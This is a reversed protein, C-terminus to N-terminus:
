TRKKGYRHEQIKSIIMQAVPKRYGGASRQGNFKAQAVIAALQEDRLPPEDPGVQSVYARCAEGIISLITPDDTAPFPKRIEIATEMWGELLGPETVANRLATVTENRLATVSLNSQITNEQIEKPSDSPPTVGNRHKERWRKQREANTRDSAVPPNWEQYHHPQLEGDVQDILRAKRLRAVWDSATLQDTRLRYAITQIDPLFGGHLRALLILKIWPKVLDEPLSDIKRNDLADTHLKVYDSM